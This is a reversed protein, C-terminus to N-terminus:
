KKGRLRAIEKETLGSKRLQNEIQITRATKFEKQVKGKLTKAWSPKYMQPYQKRLAVDILKQEVPTPKVVRIDKKAVNYGLIKRSHGLLLRNHM